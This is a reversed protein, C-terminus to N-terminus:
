GIIEIDSARRKFNANGRPRRRRDPGFFEPAQVFPRPNTLAAELRSLLDAPRVPKCLFETAGGDIASALTSRNAHGTLMVMPLFRAHTDLQRVQRIFELGNMVPMEYDVFAIDVNSQALISLAERGNAATLVHGIGATTLIGGILGRMQRNDDVVLVNLQALGTM